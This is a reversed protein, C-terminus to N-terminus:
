SLSYFGELPKITYECPDPGQSNHERMYDNTRKIAANAASRTWFVTVSKKQLLIGAVPVKKWLRTSHTVLGVVGGVSENVIVYAKRKKM